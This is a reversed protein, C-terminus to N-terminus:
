MIKQYTLWLRDPIEEKLAMQYDKYTCAVLYHRKFVTTENATLAVEMWWRGTKKSKYFILENDLQKNFVYYKVYDNSDRRPFDNKRLAIGEILFWIMQATLHATQGNIDRLPNIEYFGASSLKDNMGAYRIIKCIEEGYFGNPSVHECGPADSQRVCGIDISLMDANRVLAEAAEMDDRIKGLRYTDFLLKKMLAVIDEDVFYSQHGINTYNFLYNPQQLVIKNLYNKSHLNSFSKEVDFEADLSAINIIQKLKEYALYNAYSIDNSGGIIVPFIKQQILESVVLSLAAYTDDPTQGIIINGLDAIQIDPTRNKLKYLYTRVADPAQSTGINGLANREEPVGIIAVHVGEFSQSKHVDFLITSGLSNESFSDLTQKDPIVAQLMDFWDTM